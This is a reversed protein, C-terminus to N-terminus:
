GRLQDAVRQTRGPIQRYLLSDILEDAARDRDGKALALLMKRFRRLRTLGLWFCLQVLCSQTSSPSEDFWKFNRRLEDVCRDIDNRLLLEAEPESIGLGGRDEDINRGFGITLAGSSCRYGCARYGEDLKLRAVIKEIPLIRAM